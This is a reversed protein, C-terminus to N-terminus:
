RVSRTQETECSEAAGLNQPSDSTQLRKRAKVVLGVKNSSFFRTLIALPYALPFLTGPLLALFRPFRIYSIAEVSFGNAELLTAIRKENYGSRWHGGGVFVEQAGPAGPRDCALVPSAYEEPSATYPTSLVLLGGPNLLRNIERVGARDDKLHEIVECCLVANFEADAFGTACLDGFRFSVSNVGASRLIPTRGELLAHKIANGLALNDRDLDLVVVEWGQRALEFSHPGYSGGADLLRGGHGRLFGLVTGAVLRQKLTLPWGLLRIATSGMWAFVRRELGSTLFPAKPSALM